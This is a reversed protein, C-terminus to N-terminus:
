AAIPQETQLEPVPGVDIGRFAAYAYPHNFVDLPPADDVDIEFHMQKGPRGPEEPRM